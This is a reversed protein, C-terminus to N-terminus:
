VSEVGHKKEENLKKQESSKVPPIEPTTEKQKV